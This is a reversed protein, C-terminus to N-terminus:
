SQVEQEFPEIVFDELDKIIKIGAVGEVAKPENLIAEKNIETKERLFRSLKLRKLAEIV